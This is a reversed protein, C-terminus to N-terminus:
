PIRQEYFITIVTGPGEYVVLGASIDKPYPLWTTETTTNAGGIEGFQNTTSYSAAAAVDHFSACKSGSGSVTPSIQWGLIRCKGPIVTSISVLEVVGIGSTNVVTTSKLSPDDSANLFVPFGILFALALILCLFKKM